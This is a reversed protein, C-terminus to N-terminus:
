QVSESLNKLYEAIRANIDASIAKWLLGSCPIGTIKAAEAHEMANTFEYLANIIFGEYLLAPFDATDDILNKLFKLNNQM